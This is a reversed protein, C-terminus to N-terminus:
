RWNDRIVQGEEVQDDIIIKCDKMTQSGIVELEGIAQQLETIQEELGAMKDRPDGLDVAKCNVAACKNRHIWNFGEKQVGNNARWESGMFQVVV